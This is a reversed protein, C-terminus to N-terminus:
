IIISFFFRLSSLDNADAPVCDLKIDPVINLFILFDFNISFLAFRTAM